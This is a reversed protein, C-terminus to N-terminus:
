IQFRFDAKRWSEPNTKRAAYPDWLRTCFEGTKRLGKTLHRQWLLRAAAAARTFLTRIQTIVRAKVQREAPRRNRTTFSGTCHHGVLLIAFRVPCNLLSEQGGPPLRVCNTPRFLRLATGAIRSHLAQQRFRASKNRGVQSMRLRPPLLSIESERTGVSQTPVCNQAAGRCNHSASRGPLANGRPAHSHPAIGTARLIPARDAPCGDKGTRGLSANCNNSSYFSPHGDSHAGM